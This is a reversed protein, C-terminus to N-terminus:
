RPARVPIVRLVCYFTRQLGFADYFTSRLRYSGPVLKKASVVSVLQIRNSGVRDLHTFTTVAVFRTCRPLGRNQRTPVLCGHPGRRGSTARALTFHSTLPTAATYSILASALAAPTALDPTFRPAILPKPHALIIPPIPLPQPSSPPPSSPSSAPPSPTVGTGTFQVQHLGSDDDGNIEWTGAASGPTTPTFTVTENVTEGPKIPTGEQLSTVAAFDGGFPPKSKTITVAIGGTNTITFSKTVTAGVAAAGYDISESSFQLHGPTAATASLAVTKSGGDSDIEVSDTFDGTQTPAFAIDFSVSAGPAITAGVPSSVVSFPASPGKLASITITTGGQNSLIVSGSLRGGVTTGGLSLLTPSSALQGAPAQGTGSLSFSVTGPGASTTVGVNVQGVVVGTQTPTFTVPVSIQQGATLNAPLPQSPTGTSFQTSSSGISSVTVNTSATLTLTQPSSSTNTTTSPFTLASGTLPQTVPSGFALVKGDRTGVYLRGSGVGPVSYNTATGIAASYVKRLQNGVPVPNYARLQGGTGSRSSSWIVWVLASGSTTGDSTIVPSGSGWGFTDPAGSGDVASAQYALAPAGGASLGYKYADLLGGSPQTTSTAIYVYGGDGPWVSPKGWVGGRPGTRQIVDDSSAAGQKFGGLGDRNLLYVYGQKGVAVALHPLAGTGFYADPLGLLGGSGFDVDNQDLQAADFPAFFDVASLTGDANVHLRVVSEGLTAPPSGGPAAASPSSGNGSILLISGSGDSTLGYGSQWIGAGGSTPPTDIWRAKIQGVTSVGFVWGRWPWVDCHSGFAAYVVGDLLLLGPRQQQTTPTFTVSPANDANGSLPVPFGSREQGSSIDRADMYWAAAGSTGSAYTKYTLYVTNTSTDIVPTSTTGISPSIDGCGIDAPNWPTTALRQSWKTAGTAPDLGYLSDSETAVILTGNALLPQAYVQGNVPSSWLQGFSGGSVIQPTIGPEDPYWGTRLNDASNTVVAGMAPGAFVLATVGVLAVLSSRWGL